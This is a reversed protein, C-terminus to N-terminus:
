VRVFQNNIYRAVVVGYKQINDLTLKKSMLEPNNAVKDASIFLLTIVKKIVAMVLVNAVATICHPQGVFYTKIEIPMGNYYLDCGKVSDHTYLTKYDKTVVEKVIQEGIIGNNYNSLTYYTERKCNAILNCLLDVKEVRGKDKNIYKAVQKKLGEIIEYKNKYQAQKM